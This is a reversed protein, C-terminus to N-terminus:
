DRHWAVRVVKNEHSFDFELDGAYADKLAHGFKEALHETTTEIRITDAEVKQSIIRSLPNTDLAEVAENKLLNIIEERHENVFEGSVSVYGGAVGAKIQKCAPCVTRAAARLTQKDYKKPIRDAAIWHGSTYLSGCERCVAPTPLKLAARRAGGDHDVRKTFTANTYAKNSKMKQIEM